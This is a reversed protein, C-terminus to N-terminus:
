VFLCSLAVAKILHSLEENSTTLENISSPATPNLLIEEKLNILTILIRNNEFNPTSSSAAIQDIATLFDHHTNMIRMRYPAIGKALLFNSITKLHGIPHADSSAPPRIFRLKLSPDNKMLQVIEELNQRDEKNISVSENRSTFAKIFLRNEPISPRKTLAKKNNTLTVPNSQMIHTNEFGNLKAKNEITKAEGYVDYIGAHYHAIGNQDKILDVKEFGNYYFYSTQIDNTFASLEVGYEQASLPRFLGLWIAVFLLLSLAKKM